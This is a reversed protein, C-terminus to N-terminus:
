KIWLEKISGFAANVDVTVRRRANDWNTSYYAECRKVLGESLDSGQLTM